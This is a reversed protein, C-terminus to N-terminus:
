KSAKETRIQHIAGTCVLGNLLDYTMKDDGLKDSITGQAYSPTVRKRFSAIKIRIMTLPNMQWGVMTVFRRFESPSRYDQTFDRM